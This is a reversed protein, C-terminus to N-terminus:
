YSPVQFLILTTSFTRKLLCVRLYRRLFCIVFTKSSHKAAPHTPLLSEPEDQSSLIWEKFAKFERQSAKLIPESVSLFCDAQKPKTQPQIEHLKSPPLPALTIDDETFSYTNLYVNHMVMRDYLWPRELLM